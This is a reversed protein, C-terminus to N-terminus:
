VDKHGLATADLHQRAHAKIEQADLILATEQIPTHATMVGAQTIVADLGLVDKEAIHLADRKTKDPAVQRPGLVNELLLTLAVM